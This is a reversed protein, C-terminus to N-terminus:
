WDTNGICVPEPSASREEGEGHLAPEEGPPYTPEFQYPEAGFMASNVETVRSEEEYPVDYNGCIDASVGLEAGRHQPWVKSM